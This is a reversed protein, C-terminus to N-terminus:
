RKASSFGNGSKSFGKAVKSKGGKKRRSSLMLEIAPSPEDPPAARSAGASSPIGARQGMAVWVQAIWKTEGATEATHLTRADPRGNVFAPYFLLAKGCRPQIAIDLHEFRTRGGEDVDNLYILLTAQRQFRNEKVFSEPFADEHELFHQGQHYRAVQLSEFCFQGPPPLKGSETWAGRPLLKRAMTHLKDVLGSLHPHADLLTGELLLTSSTRRETVAAVSSQVGGEGIRSKEMRGTGEAAAILEQCEQQSLFGDVTFVPPDLCHIHLGPLDLNIPVYTQVPAERRYRHPRGPQCRATACPLVQGRALCGAAPLM